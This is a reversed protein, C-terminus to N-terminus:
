YITFTDHILNDIFMHRDFSCTPLSAIKQVIVSDPERTIVTVIYGTDMKYTKNDAYRKSITIPHYVIAPYQLRLGEPPNYYVHSQNETGIISVFTAHLELRRRKQLTMNDM